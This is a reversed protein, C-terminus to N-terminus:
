GTGRCSTLGEYASEGRQGHLGDRVREGCAVDVVSGACVGLCGGVGEGVGEGFVAFDRLLM